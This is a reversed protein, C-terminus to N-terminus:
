AWKSVVLVSILCIMRALDNTAGFVDGTLGNFHRNSTWVMILAAIIGAALGLLGLTQLLSVALGFSIVLAAIFRLAGRKGHMAEIFYTNMGKHASRGVRAETVMGLKASVESLVLVQLALSPSLTAICFATTSLTVLGLALGGAGTRQDHMIEIKKEPPGQYMLGDGFDLLGDTHHLGTFLLIFGLTLVGTVLSPLALFLLMALLGALLGILAGILPFLYMHDAAAVLCDQSMGVPIITLFATVSRVGKLMGSAM